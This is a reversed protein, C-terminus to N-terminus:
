VRSTYAVTKKMGFTLSQTVEKQTGLSLGGGIKGGGGSLSLDFVREKTIVDSGEFDYEEGTEYAASPVTEEFLTTLISVYSKLEKLNRDGFMAIAPHDEGLTAVAPHDKLALHDDAAARIDLLIATYAAVYASRRRKFEDIQEMNDRIVVHAEANFKSLDTIGAM